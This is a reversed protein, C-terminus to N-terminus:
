GIETTSKRGDIKRKALDVRILRVLGQPDDKPCRVPCEWGEDAFIEWYPEDGGLMRYCDLYVSYKVGEADILLRATAGLFPPLIKFRWGPPFALWPFTHERQAVDHLTHGFTEIFREDMM